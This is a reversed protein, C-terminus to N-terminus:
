DDRSSPPNVEAIGPEFAILSTSRIAEGREKDGKFTADMEDLLLTPQEREVIRYLAATSIAGAMRPQASLSRLVRMFTSKGSEKVASTVWLYPMTRFVNFTHTHVMWLAAADAQSNTMVVYRRAFKVVDELLEPDPVVIPDPPIVPGSGNDRSPLIIPTDPMVGIQQGTEEDFVPKGAAVIETASTSGSAETVAPADKKTNDRASM